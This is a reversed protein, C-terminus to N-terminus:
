FRCFGPCNQTAPCPSRKMLPVSLIFVRTQDLKAGIWELSPTGLSLMQHAAAPGRCAGRDTCPGCSLRCGKTSMIVRLGWLSIWSDSNVSAFTSTPHGWSLLARATCGTGSSSETRPAEVWSVAGEGLVGVATDTCRAEGAWM